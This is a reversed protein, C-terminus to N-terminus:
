YLCFIDIEDVEKESLLGNERKRGYSLSFKITQNNLFDRILVIIKECEPDLNKYSNNNVRIFFFRSTSKVKVRNNQMYESLNLSVFEVLMKELFEKEM